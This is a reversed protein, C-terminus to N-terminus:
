LLCRYMEAEPLSTVSKDTALFIIIYEMMVMGICSLIYPLYIKRNKYIGTAALKWYFFMKM